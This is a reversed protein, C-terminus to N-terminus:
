HLQAPHRENIHFEIINCGNAVYDLMEKKSGFLKASTSMKSCVIVDWEWGNKDCSIIIRNLKYMTEHVVRFSTWSKVNETLYALSSTVEKDICERSLHYSM